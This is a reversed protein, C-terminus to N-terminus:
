FGKMEDEIMALLESLRSQDLEPELLWTALYTQM